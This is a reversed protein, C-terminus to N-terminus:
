RADKIGRLSSLLTVGSPTLTSLCLQRERERRRVLGTWVKGGAFKYNPLFNCAEIMKGENMLRAVTSTSYAGTGVNYSFSIMSALQMPHWALHPSVRLIGDAAKQVDKSTLANCEQDTYIKGVVVDPGTTGDCVTLVKVVDYYPVNRRGEFVSIEPVAILVATGVLGAGVVGGVVRGKM